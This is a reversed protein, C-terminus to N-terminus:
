NVFADLSLPRPALCPATHPYSSVTKEAAWSGHLFPRLPLAPFPLMWLLFPAKQSEEESDESFPSSSPGPGISGSNTGLTSKLPKGQSPPPVVRELNSFRVTARQWIRDGAWRPLSMHAGDEKRSGVMSMGYPPVKCRQLASEQSLDMSGVAAKPLVQFASAWLPSFFFLSLRPIPQLQSEEM